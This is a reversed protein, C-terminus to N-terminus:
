LSSHIIKLLFEVGFVIGGLMFIYGVLLLFLLNMIIEQYM